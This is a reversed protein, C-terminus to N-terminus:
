WPWVWSLRKAWNMWMFRKSSCIVKCTMALDLRQAVGVVVSLLSFLMDLVWRNSRSPLIAKTEPALRPMPSADGVQQGLLTCMHDNGAALEVTALLHGLRDDRRTALRRRHGAVNSLQFLDLLHEGADAFLEPAQVDQDVVGGGVRLEAVHQVGIRM